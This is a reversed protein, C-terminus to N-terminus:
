DWNDSLSKVEVTSFPMTKNLELMKNRTNIKLPYKNGLQKWRSDNM